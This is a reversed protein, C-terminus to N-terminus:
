GWGCHLATSHTHSAQIVLVGIGVNEQAQSVWVMHGVGGGVCHSEYQSVSRSVRQSVTGVPEV